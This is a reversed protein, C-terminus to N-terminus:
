NMGYIRTQYNMRNNFEVALNSDFNGYFSRSLLCSLNSVGEQSEEFDKLPQCLLYDPVPVYKDEEAGEVTEEEAPLLTGETASTDKSPSTKEDYISRKDPSEKEPALMQERLHKRMIAQSALM